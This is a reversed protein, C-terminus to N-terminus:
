GPKQAHILMRYDGEVMQRAHDIYREINSHFDRMWAYQYRNNSSYTGTIRAIVQPDTLGRDRLEALTFLAKLYSGGNRQIGDSDLKSPLFNQFREFAPEKALENAVLDQHVRNLAPLLQDRQNVIAGLPDLVVARWVSGTDAVKTTAGAANSFNLGSFADNRAVDEIGSDWHRDHDAWGAEQLSHRTARALDVLAAVQGAPPISCDIAVWINSWTSIDETRRMPNKPDGPYFPIRPPPRYGFLDENAPIYPLDKTQRSRPHKLPRSETVLRKLPFFWSDSEIALRPLNETSPPIWVPLGFRTACEQDFDPKLGPIQPVALKSYIDADTNSARSEYADRYDQNLSLFLWAWDEPGFRKENEALNFPSAGPLLQLTLANRYDLLTAESLRTESM